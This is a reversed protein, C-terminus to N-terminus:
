LKAIRDKHMIDWIEKSKFVVEVLGQIIPWSSYYFWGSTVLQDVSFENELDIEVLKQMLDYNPKVGLKM